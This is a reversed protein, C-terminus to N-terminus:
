ATSSRWDGCIYVSATPKLVRVIPAVWSELWREYESLSINSFSAGNFVKNLNYPPDAILLDVSSMPLFPLVGFVDQCITRGLVEDLAANRSLRLLRSEYQRREEVTLTLTRNRPARSRETQIM